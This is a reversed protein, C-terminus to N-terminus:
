ETTALPPQTTITPRQRKRWSRYVLFLALGPLGIVLLLLPLVGITFNIALDALEQLGNVLNRLAGRITEVPAWSSEVIPVASATPQIQVDVTSLDVVDNLYNLQGQLQEIQGRTNSIETFVRLLKEPDADPQQRVEELLARLETELATLNTLQAELDVFAATVDEAGQSESLVEDAATKIAALSSTLETSPIRITVSIYPEEDETTPRVEANAVFGGAAEAIRVIEDYAARTDDAALSINVRRVVKRDVAFDVDLVINGVADGDRGFFLEEGPAFAGGTGEGDSDLNVDPAGTALDTAADGACAALVVILGLAVILNRKM